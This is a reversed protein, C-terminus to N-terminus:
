TWSTRKMMQLTGDELRWTVSALGGAYCEQGLVGRQIDRSMEVLAEVCHGQMPRGHEM